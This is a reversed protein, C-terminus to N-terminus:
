RIVLKETGTEHGNSWLIFYVGTALSLGNLDLLIETKGVPLDSTGFLRIISGNVDRLETTISQANDSEVVLVANNEPTQLLQMNLSVGMENSLMLANSGGTITNAHCNEVDLMTDIERVESVEAYFKDVTRSEIEYLWGPGANEGRQVIDYDCQSGTPTPSHGSFYSKHIMLDYNQNAHERMSYVGLGDYAAGTNNMHMTSPFDNRFNGHTYQNVVAGTGTNLKYIEIDTGGLEGLKTRGMSYLEPVGSTNVRELIDLGVNDAGWGNTSPQYYDIVTSWVPADNVHDFKLVWHDRTTVTAGSWGCIYLGEDAAAARDISKFSDPDNSDGYFDTLPGAMGGTNPDLRMIYGDDSTSLCVHRQGIVWLEGTVTNEIMDFAEEPEGSNTGTDVEYTNAFIINGTVIDLKMVVAYHQVGDFSMGCLYLSTQDDSARIANVVYSQSPSSTFYTRALVPAGTVDFLAYYIAQQPISPDIDCVGVVGYCGNSGYVANIDNLEAVKSSVVSYTNGSSPDFLNYRNKFYPGAIIRGNQETRVLLLEGLNGGTARHGCMIHGAGTISTFQGSGIHEETVPLGYRHEFFQASGAFALLCAALTLKHKM